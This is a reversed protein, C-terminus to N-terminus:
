ERNTPPRSAVVLSFMLLFEVADDVIWQSM